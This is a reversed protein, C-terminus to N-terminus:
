AEDMPRCDRYDLAAQLRNIEAAAEALADKTANLENLCQRLTEFGEVAPLASLAAIMHHKLSFSLVQEAVEIAAERSINDM